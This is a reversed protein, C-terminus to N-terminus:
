HDLWTRLRRWGRLWRAAMQKVCQSTNGMGPLLCLTPYAPMPVSAQTAGNGTGTGPRAPLPSSMVRADDSQITGSAQARAATAGTVDTLIVSFTEDLERETDGNVAVVFTRNTQGAPITEGALSRAIYDSGASATGDATGISYTVASSSARSLSITFTMPSTGDVGENVSADAISLTLPLANVTLSTTRTIGAYTASLTGTANTDSAQTSINFTASTLGQAVTVSPPVSFASSASSLSVLGGGAPAAASLTVTGQSSQGGNVPNPSASVTNLTPAVVTPRWGLQVVEFDSAKLAAFAPNLVGNNWRVDFTGSIYLDSGNDVMILGYKQMARFIKRSTADSTRLAPDSGNVSSKLRLRAGMPLAGATSGASHSAPYVHGNSARLTVRLAHKIEPIATNAAEDYRVLGPFIALGSADASTWGEPRRNNTKMDFFAGSGAYWRSQSPNYYVNYLEYLHQNTCDILLLHRDSSNRLDVNGPAGAEIWHMQSIAQAPIPYFAVNNGDSESAYQFTVTQKPQSGSVVAYPMGYIATSGASEQGGFDPHLGRTAGIFTIYSSSSADVPATSIDTNWWNDAPFVPGAVPAGQAPLTAPCSQAFAAPAAALLLSLCVPWRSWCSRRMRIWEEIWPLM